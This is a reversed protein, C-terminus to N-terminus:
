EAMCSRTGRKSVEGPNRGSKAATVQSGPGIRRLHVGNILPAQQGSTGESGGTLTRSHDANSLSAIFCGTSRRRVAIRAASTAPKELGGGQRPKSRVYVM